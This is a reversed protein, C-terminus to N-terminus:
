RKIVKTQKRSKYNAPFDKQHQEIFQYPDEGLYDKLPVYVNNSMSYGRSNAQMQKRKVWQDKEKYIYVDDFVDYYTKLNPYYYYRFKMTSETSQKEDKVVADTKVEQSYTYSTAILLIGLYFYNHQKM